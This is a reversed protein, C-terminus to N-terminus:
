FHKSALYCLLKLSSNYYDDQASIVPEFMPIGMILDRVSALGPTQAYDAQEGTTVNVWAPIKQPPFSKFWNRWPNLVASAPDDWYVYLPVRIADYSSRAPWQSAPTLQGQADVNVWDPTLKVKLNITTLDLLLKKSDKYLDDFIKQHTYSALDRLAPLIFYSPNVVVASNLYFGSVGPLLLARNAFRVSCHDAIAQALNEAKRTYSPDKFARGAKLLAWAMLLDGDTANNHDATHNTENPKYAWYHLGNESNYLNQETWQLIKDFAEKDGYALAFLMGYSQGESHTMNNNYTDTIAGNSQLYLAKYDDWANAHCLFSTCLAVAPMCYKFFNKLKM